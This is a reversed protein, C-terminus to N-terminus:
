SNAALQEITVEEWGESDDDIFPAALRGAMAEDTIGMLYHYLRVVVGYNEGPRVAAHGVMAPGNETRLYFHIFVINLVTM